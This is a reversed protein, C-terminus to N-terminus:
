GKRKGIPHRSIMHGASYYIGIKKNSIGKSQHQRGKRFQPDRVFKISARNSKRPKSPNTIHVDFIGMDHAPIKDTVAGKFAQITDYASKINPSTEVGVPEKFTFFRNPKQYPPTIVWWGMGQRWAVTGKPLPKSEKTQWGPIPPKTGEKGGGDEGGGGEGGGGEGGGGGGGGEGGSTTGTEGGQETTPTVETETETETKTETRTDTRTDTKTETETETQDHLAIHFARKLDEKEKNSLKTSMAEELLQDFDLSYDGKAIQQQILKPLRNYLRKIEQELKYDNKVDDDYRIVKIWGVLIEPMAVKWTTIVGDKGIKIFTLFKDQTIGTGPVFYDPISKARAADEFILKYAKAQREQRALDELHKQWSAEIESESPRWAEASEFEGSGSIERRADKMSQEKKLASNIDDLLKKDSKAKLLKDFLGEDEGSARLADYIDDSSMGRSKWYDFEKSFWSPTEKVLVKGKSPTATTEKQTGPTTETPKAKELSKADDIDKAIDALEKKINAARKELKTIVDDSVKAAKSKEIQKIVDDLDDKILKYTNELEKVTYRGIAGREETAIRKALSKLELQISEFEAPLNKLAKKVSFTALDGASNRLARAEAILADAGPRGAKQMELGYAEMEDAAKIIAEAKTSRIAKSMKQTLQVVRPDNCIKKMTNLFPKGLISATLGVTITTNIIREAPTMNRWDIALTTGYVATAGIELGKGIGKVVTGGVGGLIPTVVLLAVNAAGVAWEVGGIDSVKVDPKLARAPSFVTASVVEVPIRKMIALETKFPDGMEKNIKEFNAYESTAKVLKVKEAESLNPNEAYIKDTVDYLAQEIKAYDRYQKQLYASEGTLAVGTKVRADVHELWKAIVEDSYGIAKLEEATVAKEYLALAGNYSGDPLKFGEMKTNVDNYKKAFDISGKSFGWLELQDAGNQTPNDRLYKAIDYGGGTKYDDLETVEHGGPPMSYGKSATAVTERAKKIEEIRAKIEKIDKEDFGAEILTDEKGDEIAKGVYYGGGATKYKILDNLAKVQTISEQTIGLQKIQMPDLGTRIIGSIDVEYTGDNNVTIYAQLKPDTILAIQPTLEIGTQTQKLLDIKAQYGEIEKQVQVSDLSMEQIEPAKLLDEAQEIQSQWYDIQPQVDTPPLPTTDAAGTPPPVIDASPIPPTTDAATPIPTIAVIVSDPANNLFDSVQDDPVEVTTGDALRFTTSM